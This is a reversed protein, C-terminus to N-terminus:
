EQKKCPKLLTGIPTSFRVELSPYNCFFKGETINEMKLCGIRTELSFGKGKLLSDLTAQDVVLTGVLVREPNIKAMSVDFKKVHLYDDLAKQAGDSTNKWIKFVHTEGIAVCGAERSKVLTIKPYNEGNDLKLHGFSM